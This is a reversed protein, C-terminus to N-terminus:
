APAWKALCDYFTDKQFNGLPIFGVGVVAVDPLVWGYVGLNKSCM